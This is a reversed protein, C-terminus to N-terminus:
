LRVRSVGVTFFHISRQSAQCLLQPAHAFIEALKWLPVFLFSLTMLEDFLTSKSALSLTKNDNSREGASLSLHNEDVSTNGGQVTAAFCRRGQRDAVPPEHRDPILGVHLRPPTRFRKDDVRLSARHNGAQVIRM